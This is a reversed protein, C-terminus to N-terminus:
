PYFNKTQNHNDVELIKGFIIKYPFYRLFIYLKKQSNISNDMDVAGFLRVMKPRATSM